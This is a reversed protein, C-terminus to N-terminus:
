FGIDWIDHVLLSAKEHDELLMLDAFITVGPPIERFGSGEIYAEWRGEEHNFHVTHEIIKGPWTSVEHKVYHGNCIYQVGDIAVKELYKYQRGDSDM